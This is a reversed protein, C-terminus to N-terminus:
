KRDKGKTNAGRHCWHGSGGVYKTSTRPLRPDRKPGGDSKTM